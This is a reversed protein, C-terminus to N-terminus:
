FSHCDVTDAIWSDDTFSRYNEIRTGSSINLKIISNVRKAIKISIPLKGLHDQMLVIDATEIASDTGKGMAIGLDATALAPADNIGDGVMAIKGTRTLEKVKEVKMDPLLSAYYDTLGIATAVKEATKQHDGTFM